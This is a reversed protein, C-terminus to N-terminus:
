RYAGRINGTMIKLYTELWVKKADLTNVVASKMTEGCTICGPLNPYSVVSGGEDKDEVIKMYYSMEMYDNPM